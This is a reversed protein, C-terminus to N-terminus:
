STPIKVAGSALDTALKSIQSDLDAPVGTITRNAPTSVISKNAITSLIGKNGFNGANVADVYMKFIPYMDLDVTAVNVKEAVAGASAPVGVTIAGAAQAGSGVGIAIGDGTTYLIKAGQKVLGQSAQSAKQADDFSGVFVPALVKAQPNTAKLGTTFGAATATVFPLNQSEVIGVPSQGTKGAIFGSLYGVQGSDYTWTDVNATAKALVDTGGSASFHVKPFEKAVKFIPDALELGYGIVLDYGQGAFDRIVPESDTPSAMGERLQFTIAAEDALKQAAAQAWHNFAGDNAQGPVLVAVKLKKGAPTTTSSVTGSMGSPAAGSATMSSAAGSSAAGSAAGSSAASAAASSPGSAASSSASSGSAATSNSSCGTLALAVAALAPLM